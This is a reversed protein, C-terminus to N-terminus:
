VQVIIESNKLNEKNYSLITNDKITTVEVNLGRLIGHPAATHWEWSEDFFPYVDAKSEAILMWQLSSDIAITEVTGLSECYAKAKQSLGKQSTVLRLNNTKNKFIELRHEKEMNEVMYSGFEKGGFFLKDLAPAYVVGLVPEQKHILAVNVTFGDKHDGFSEHGNLPDIMWFYNWSKREDYSIQESLESLIPFGTTRLKTILISQSNNKANIIQEDKLPLQDEQYISLLKIGADRVGDIAM